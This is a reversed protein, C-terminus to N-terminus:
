EQPPVEKDNPEEQFKRSDRLSAEAKSLGQDPNQRRYLRLYAAVGVVAAVVGFALTLATVWGEIVM